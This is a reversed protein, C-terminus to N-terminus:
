NGGGSAKGPLILMSWDGADAVHRAVAARVEEATLSAYDKLYARTRDVLKPDRSWNEMESLWYANTKLRREIGSVVPNQARSFEEASAPKTALDSVIERAIRFFSQASEPRLESAAYFIGWDKLEDSTTSVAAPSYSAGEEERLREFLRVRFMNAALALARMERTRDTGGFTTWGILAYAQDKDGNHTFTKPTPSPQPPRVARANAAVRSPARAPLAGITKAVAAVATDIDVDGVIAVEAPGNALLPTFFSRFTEPTVAAIQAKEVPAWRRDNPRVFGPLERGARSAASAFSLDYSELAGAQFRRFLAEDWRPYALKTALLRLQDPLDARSTIGRLEFADEAVGFMLNLRRGTMLREMADQDFDAFGSPAILGGLWAYSPATPSLGTLGEGWRVQVQVSGKEFGTEKFVLSTGNAFRVITVGLDEIRQRSVEKGPAGLPPLTAFSVARDAQRVAPAAKEAQALARNAAALTVPEPSLLMMRPGAGSFLTKMGAAVATPTMEAALEEVLKLSTAASAVVTEDDVANVLRQAHAPSRLTSEGEVAARANARLNSLEREIEAASPPARLADNVIAFAENLAESWRGEKATLSLQTVDAVHTSRSEGVAAGVYAAGTRARAEIRRNLIRAALGRALDTRERAKTNPLTQYPRLWMLTASYPAGPYALAAAREELKRISGFNPQAPTPGSGKWDGFRKGILEEMLKPDADGVMVVTAREPRYWREYFARLGEANAAQLTAPTGITFRDALKLGAYFLPWSAEQLKLGLEPMRGREAMVIKKEAEVAAPDFLATDVMESLVHLSQDLNARDNKPLDLQYVTQTPTTSANTDSGFSAGLKQWIYRAERDGFSKSGRFAMHEVLHAWGREKEEEHLSGADIRVRISVQGAPLKNQRVAYRVGNPLTGFTWAPDRPIDSGRYLWDADGAALAPTGAIILLALLIRRFLLTMSARVLSSAAPTFPNPHSIGSKEAKESSPLHVHPLPLASIRSM